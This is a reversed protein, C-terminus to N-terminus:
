PSSPPPSLPFSPPPSLSLFFFVLFSVDATLKGYNLDGKFIVLESRRLEEFLTPATGPMRWFSGGETWFRDQRIRLRGESHFHNLQTSLFSLGNLEQESLPKRAQKEHEGQLPTTHFFAQPDALANLLDNFDKPIVDSVFWPISKPHLIVTTALNASLLYAALILDVFLEFGANDLVIDVRRDKGDAPRRQTKRLVQFAFPLDNVIINSEARLGQLRQVDDHALNIWHSLDTVNGWLCIECIETFVIREAEEVTELETDAAEHKTEIQSILDKYRLALEVVAAGSSQFAAVKQRHFVDYTKWTTSLSFLTNLRRDQGRNNRSLKVSFLFPDRSGVQLHLVGCLALAHRAM